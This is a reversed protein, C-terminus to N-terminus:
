RPVAVVPGEKQNFLVLCLCNVKIEEVFLADRWSSSLMVCTFAQQNKEENWFIIATKNRISDFM